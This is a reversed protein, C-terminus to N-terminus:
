QQLRTNTRPFHPINKLNKKKRNKSYTSLRFPVPSLFTTRGENYIEKQVGGIRTYKIARHGGDVNFLANYLAMSGGALLLVAGAGGFLGRPNRGFGGGFGGSRQQATALTAQLRRWAEKPDQGM